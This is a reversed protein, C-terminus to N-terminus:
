WKLLGCPMKSMNSLKNDGNIGCKNITEIVLFIWFYVLIKFYFIFCFTKKKTTRVDISQCIIIKRMRCSFFWLLFIGLGQLFQRGWYIYFFLHKHTFWVLVQIKKRNTTTKGRRWFFFGVIFPQIWDTNSLIHHIKVSFM